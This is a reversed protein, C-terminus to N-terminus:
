VEFIAFPRKKLMAFNAGVETQWESTTLKCSKNRPCVKLTNQLHLEATTALCVKEFFHRFVRGQPTRSPPVQSPNKSNEPQFHKPKM